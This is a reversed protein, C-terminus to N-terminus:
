KIEFNPQKIIITGNKNWVEYQGKRVLKKGGLEISKELAKHFENHSSVLTDENTSEEIVPPIEKNKMTILEIGKFVVYTNSSLINKEGVVFFEITYSGETLEIPIKYDLIIVDNYLDFEKEFYLETEKLIRLKAIGHTNHKEALINLQTLEEVILSFSITSNVQNSYTLADGLWRGNYQFIEDKFDKIIKKDQFHPFMVTDEIVCWIDGEEINEPKPKGIYADGNVKIYQKNLELYM